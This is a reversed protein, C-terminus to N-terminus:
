EGPYVAFLQWEGPDLEGDPYGQEQLDASVHPPVDPACKWGGEYRGETGVSAFGRITDSIAGGLLVQVSDPSASRPEARPLRKLWVTVNRVVSDVASVEGSNLVVSRQVHADAITAFTDPLPVHVDLEFTVQCDYYRAAAYDRVTATLHLNYLGARSPPGAANCSALLVAGCLLPKWPVVTRPMPRRAGMSTLIDLPHGILQMQM